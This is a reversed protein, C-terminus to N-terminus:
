NVIFTFSVNVRDTLKQEEPSFTPEVRDAAATKLMTSEMRYEMPQFSYGSSYNVKYVMIQEIGMTKAIIDAKAKADKLALELLQEQYTKRKAESIGFSLNYTLEDAATNIAEVIKVLDKDTQKVVIKVNQSAVYGSDKYANRQYVRNINVYYNDVVFEYDKVGTKKLADEIDKTKKNLANTAESVKMSLERLNLQITAQDPMAKIESVGDVDISPYNQQQAMTILPLMLVSLLFLLKKM